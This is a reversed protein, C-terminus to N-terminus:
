YHNGFIGMDEAANEEEEDSSGSGRRASLKANKEIM